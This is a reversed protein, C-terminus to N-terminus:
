TQQQQEPRMHMGKEANGLPIWHVAYEVHDALERNWSCLCWEGCPALVAFASYVTIGEPRPM